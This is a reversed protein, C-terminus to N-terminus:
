LLSIEVLNNSKKLITSKKTKHEKKMRKYRVGSEKFQLPIKRKSLLQEMMEIVKKIHSFGDKIAVVSDLEQYYAGIHISKYAINLSAYLKGNLPIYKKIATWYGEISSPLQSSSIGKNVLYGNIAKLAALYGIGAAESVYKADTFRGYEIPSKLLTEKANTLYRYAEKIYDIGEM